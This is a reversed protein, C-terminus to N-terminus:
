WYALHCTELSIRLCYIHEIDVLRSKPGIRYAIVMRHASDHANKETLMECDPKRRAKQQNLPVASASFDDRAKKEHANTPVWPLLEMKTAEGPDEDENHCTPKRADCKYHLVTCNFLRRLFPICKAQAM